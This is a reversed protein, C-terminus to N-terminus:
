RVPQSFLRSFTDHSPVGNRLCLFKDLFDQKAPRLDGCRSSDPRVGATRRVPALRCFSPFHVAEVSNQQISLIVLFSFIYEIDTLPM